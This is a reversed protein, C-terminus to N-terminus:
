RMEGTYKTSPVLDTRDIEDAEVSLRYGRKVVTQVMRADGLGSRLRAIAAEVSHEEGGGPLCALLEQRSVVVGPRKGLARLVAMPAPPLERLQGDVVAAQGRVELTHGAVRLKPARRTLEESVVRALPGIRTREPQVVPIGWAALPGATIPGVAAVLVRERMTEVLAGLRGTRRAATLMSAAAPASTFPLADVVGELVADILRDLPGPDAPPVWRYVPIEIVDAGADRLAQVFFPLPEGHQQVAIRRGAVGHDLLYQLVEATSESPPSFSETLGAARVAGVAKPGRVVVDAKGLSTLLEDGCGWGEAAALWGRLGIGTTIVVINAPHDILVKTASFLEADDSLPVIRIAPGHRVTAGKRAFLAALEEARRSATVGITFGALPATV